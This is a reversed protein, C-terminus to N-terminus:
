QSASRTSYSVLATDEVSATQTAGCMYPLHEQQIQHRVQSNYLYLTFEPSFEELEEENGHVSWGIEIRLKKVAVASGEALNSNALDDLARDELKHTVAVQTPSSTLGPMSGAFM